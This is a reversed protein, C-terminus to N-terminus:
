AGRQKVTLVPCPLVTQWHAMLTEYARYYAGIEALDFRVKPDVEFAKEPTALRLDPWNLYSNVRALLASITAKNELPLETEANKAFGENWAKIMEGSDVSRLFSLVLQWPEDASLLMQAQDTQRPVYLGAM